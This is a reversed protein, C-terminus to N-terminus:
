PDENSQEKESLFEDLFEVHKCTRRYGFGPCDCVLSLSEPLQIVTYEIEEKGPKNRSSPFKAPKELRNYIRPLKTIYTGNLENYSAIADEVFMLPFSSDKTKILYGGDETRFISADPGSLRLVNSATDREGVKM